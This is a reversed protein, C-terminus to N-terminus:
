EIFIADEPTLRPGLTPPKNIMIQKIIESDRRIVVLLDDPTGEFPWALVPIVLVNDGRTRVGSASGSASASATATKGSTASGRITKGGKVSEDGSAEGVGEKKTPFGRVNHGDKWISAVSMDVM